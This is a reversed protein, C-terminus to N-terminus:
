MRVEVAVYPSAFKISVQAHMCECMGTTFTHMHQRTCKTHGEMAVNQEKSWKSWALGKSMLLCLLLSAGVAPSCNVGVDVTDFKVTILILHTIIAM